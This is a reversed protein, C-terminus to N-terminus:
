LSNPSYLFAGVPRPEAPLPEEAATPSRGCSVEVASWYFNLLRASRSAADCMGICFSEIM